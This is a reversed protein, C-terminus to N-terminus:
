EEIIEIKLHQFHLELEQDRLTVMKIFEEDDVFKANFTEAENEDNLSPSLVKETESIKRKIPEEGVREQFTVIARIGREIALREEDNESEDFGVYLAHVIHQKPDPLIGTDFITEGQPNLNMYFESFRALIERTRSPGPEIPPAKQPPPPANINNWIAVCIMFCFTVVLAIIFPTSDVFM